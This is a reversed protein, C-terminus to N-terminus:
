QVRDLWYLPKRKAHAVALVYVGDVLRYPIVFPFRHLVFRRIALAAPTRPIAPWAEPTESILAFASAVETIFDSALAASTRGYWEASRVLEAEAERHLRVRM